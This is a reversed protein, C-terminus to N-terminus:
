MVAGGGVRGGGVRCHRKVETDKLVHHSHLYNHPCATIHKTRTDTTPTLFTHHLNNGSVTDDGFVSRELIQFKEFSTVRCYNYNSAKM